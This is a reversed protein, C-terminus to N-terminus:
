PKPGWMGDSSSPKSAEDLEARLWAQLVDPFGTCGTLARKKAELKAIKSNLLMAGNDDRCM